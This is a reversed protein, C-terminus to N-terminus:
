SVVAGGRAGCEGIGVGRRAVFRCECRQSSIYFRPDDIFYGSRCKATCRWSVGDGLDHHSLVGSLADGEDGAGGLADAPRDGEGEGVGAEVDGEGVEGAGFGGFLQGRLDFGFAALGECDAGIEGVGFGCGGRDELL